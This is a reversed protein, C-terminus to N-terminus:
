PAQNHVQHVAQMILWGVGVMVAVVGVLPLLFVSLVGLMVGLSAIVFVMLLDLPLLAIQVKRSVVPVRRNNAVCWEGVQKVGGALGAIGGAVGFLIIFGLVLHQLLDGDVLYALYSM